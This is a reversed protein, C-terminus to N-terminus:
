DIRDFDGPPFPVFSKEIRTVWADYKKNRAQPYTIHFAAWSSGKRYLKHYYETGDRTVGSVVYWNPTKKKYTITVDPTELEEEWRKDFSDNTDPVFFHAFAALSFERDRTHFERGDGNTPEPGAVLIKPYTLIFGFRANQYKRWQLEGGYFAATTSFWLFSAFLLLRSM